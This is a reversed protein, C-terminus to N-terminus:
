DNRKERAVGDLVVRQLLQLAVVGLVLLALELPVLGASGLLLCLGRLGDFLLGCLIGLGLLACTARLLLYLLHGRLGSGESL